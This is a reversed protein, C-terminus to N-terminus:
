ISIDRNECSKRPTKIVDTVGVDDQSLFNDTKSTVIKKQVIRRSMKRVSLLMSYRNFIQNKM